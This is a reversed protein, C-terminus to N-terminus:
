QQRYWGECVVTFSSIGFTNMTNADVEPVPAYESVWAGAIIYTLATEGNLRMIDLRLDRRFDALQHAGDGEKWNSVAMAWDEFRGDDLGLGQEFTIPEYSTGGTIQSQSNRPHGATRVAVAENKCKLGSCKMVGAVPLDG